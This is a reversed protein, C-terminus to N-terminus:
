QEIRLNRLQAKTQLFYDNPRRNPDVNIILLVQMMTTEEPRAPTETIEQGNKDFYKFVSKQPDDAKNQIYRSLITIKEQDLPYSVPQGVPEVVGKDFEQEKGGATASWTLKFQAKMSHNPEQWDCFNDVRRSADALFQLNNDRAQETVDFTATGQWFGPCDNCEGSSRCLEGLMSGDAFIEAFERSWGFDGEISVQVQAQELTGQYFNSFNVSCTGGDIYSVCEKTEESASTGGLFYRVREVEGDRDIDSFFIFENDEAKEITYSGDEGATAGRIERLMTKVGRRAEEIAIGQKWVFDYSRYLSIILSFLASIILSFIVISILTEILTFGKSRSRLFNVPYARRNM